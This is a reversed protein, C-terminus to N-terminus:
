AKAAKLQELRREVKPQLLSNVSPQRQAAFAQGVKVEAELAWIREEMRAFGHMHRDM